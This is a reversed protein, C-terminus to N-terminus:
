GSEVLFSAFTRKPPGYTRGLVVRKITNQASARTLILTEPTKQPLLKPTNRSRPQYKPGGGVKGFHGPLSKRKDGRRRWGLDDKKIEATWSSGKQSTRQPRGLDDKENKGELTDM